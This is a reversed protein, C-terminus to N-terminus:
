TAASLLAPDACREINVVHVDLMERLDGALAVDEIRPLRADLATAVASQGRDLLRLQEALTPKAMLKDYFAGTAVSPVGGLRVIHQRLMVCFRGEDRAVEQLLAALAGTYRKALVTLGQAGAREGELLENLWDILENASLAPLPLEHQYCPSSAPPRNCAADSPSDERM